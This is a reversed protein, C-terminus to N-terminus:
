PINFRLQIDSVRQDLDKIFHNFVEKLLQYKIKEDKPILSVDFNGLRFYINWKKLLDKNLFQEINTFFQSNSCNSLRVLIEPTPMETKEDIDLGVFIDTKTRCVNLHDKLLFKKLSIFCEYFSHSKTAIIFIFDAWNFSICVLIKLENSINKLHSELKETFEKLSFGGNIAVQLIFNANDKAFRFFDRMKEHNEKDELALFDIIKSNTNNVEILRIATLALDNKYFLINNEILPNWLYTTNYSDTDSQQINIERNELVKEILDTIVENQIYKDRFLCDVALFYFPGLEHFWFHSTKTSNIKKLSKLTKELNVLPSQEYGDFRIKIFSLLTVPLKSLNPLIDNIKKDLIKNKGFFSSFKHAFNKSFAFLCTNIRGEKLPINKQDNGQEELLKKNIHQSLKLNLIAFFNGSKKECNIELLDRFSFDDKIIHNYISTFLNIKNQFARSLFLSTFRNVTQKIIFEEITARINSQDPKYSNEAYSKQLRNLIEIFLNADFNPMEFRNFLSSRRTSIALYTEFPVKLRIYWSRFLPLYIHDIIEDYAFLIRWILLLYLPGFIYALLTDVFIDTLLPYLNHISIYNYPVIYDSISVSLDTIYDDIEKSFNRDLSNILFHLCEHTIIPWLSPQNVIFFSGEFLFYLHERENCALFDSFDLFQNGSNTEWYVSIFPLEQYSSHDQFNDFFFRFMYELGEYFKYEQRTRFITPAPFYPPFAELTYKIKKQLFSMIKLANQLRYNICVIKSYIDFIKQNIELENNQVNPNSECTRSASLILRFIEKIENNAVNFIRYLPRIADRKTSRISQNNSTSVNYCGFFKAIFALNLLEKSLISVRAKSECNLLIKLPLLIRNRESMSTEIKYTDM